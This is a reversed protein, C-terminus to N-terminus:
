NQDIRERYKEDYYLIVFRYNTYMNVDNKATFFAFNPMEREGAIFFKIIKYTYSFHICLFYM